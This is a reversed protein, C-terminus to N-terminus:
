KVDVLRRFDPRDRLPKWIPDLRLIAPTYFPTGSDALARELYGVARAFDGMMVCAEALHALEL